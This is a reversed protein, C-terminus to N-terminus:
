GLTESLFCAPSPAATWPQPDAAPGPSPSEWRGGAWLPWLPGHSLPHQVRHAAPGLLEAGSGQGLLASLPRFQNM